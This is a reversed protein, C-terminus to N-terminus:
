IASDNLALFLDDAEKQEQESKSDKFDYMKVNFKKLMNPSPNFNVCSGYNRQLSFRLMMLNQLLDLSLKNRLKSKVISYTSFAREVSANLTPVTLLAMAFKAVNGFRNHGASDCDDYVESFFKESTNVNSWPKNQLKNWESEVDDKNGYLATRDFSNLNDPLRSQIESELVCWFNKCREKVDKLDTPNLYEAISRFEYNTPEINDSQFLVNLQTVIKLESKLFILFAKYPLRSM